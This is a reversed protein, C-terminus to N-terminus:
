EERQAAIKQQIRMSSAHILRQPRTTIGEEWIGLAPPASVELVAEKYLALFEM